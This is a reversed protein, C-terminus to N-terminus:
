RSLPAHLSNRESHHAYSGFPDTTQSEPKAVELETMLLLDLISCSDDDHWVIVTRGTPSRSVFDPHRVLFQRGDAMRITFPRFPQQLLSRSFPETTM